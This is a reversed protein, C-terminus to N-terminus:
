PYTHQPESACISKDASNASGQLKPTRYYRVHGLCERHCKSCLWWIPRNPRLAEECKSCILPQRTSKGLEAKEHTERLAELVADSFRNCTSCVHCQKRINCDVSLQSAWRVGSRGDRCTCSGQYYKHSYMNKYFCKSCHVQCLRRHFSAETDLCM